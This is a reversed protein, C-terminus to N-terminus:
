SCRNSWRGRRRLAVTTLTELEHGPAPASLPRFPEDLAVAHRYDPLATLM